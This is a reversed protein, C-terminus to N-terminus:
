YDEPASTKASYKAEEVMERVEKVRPVDHFRVGAVNAPKNWAGNTHPQSDAAADYFNLSGCGFIRDLIGREESISAIRKLDIERSHKYLVGWNAKVRRDTLTYFTSYWQMIPVVVYWIELSVILGHVIFNGWSNWFDWGTSTSMIKFFFIHALLLLLQIVAPKFLVKPHVRATYLTNETAMGLVIVPECNSLAKYSLLVEHLLVM